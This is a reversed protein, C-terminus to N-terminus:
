RLSGTFETIPVFEERSTRGGDQVAGTAGQLWATRGIFRRPMPDQTGLKIAQANSLTFKQAASLASDPIAWQTFLTLGVLSWENPLPWVAYARGYLTSPNVARAVQLSVIDTKLVCGWPFGLNGLDFPLPVPGWSSTNSGLWNVALNEPASPNRPPVTGYLSLIMTSGPVATDVYPYGHPVLGNSGRCGGGLDVYTGNVQAPAAMADRRWVSPRNPFEYLLDIAMNGGPYTWPVQFPIALAFPAVGSSPPAAHPLKFDGVFVTTPRESWNDWFSSGMDNGDRFTPGVDVRLSGGSNGSYTTSLHKHDRRFAVKNIVSGPGFPLSSGVMVTMSRAKATPHGASVSFPTNMAEEGRRNAYQSPWVVSSQAGGAPALLGIALAATVVLGAARPGPFFLSSSNMNTSSKM